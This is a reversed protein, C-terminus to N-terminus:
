AGQQLLAARLLTLSQAWWRLLLFGFQRVGSRRINAVLIPLLPLVCPQPLLNADDPAEIIVEDLGEESYSEIFAQLEAAIARAEVEKGEGIPVIV